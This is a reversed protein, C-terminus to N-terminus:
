AAATLAEVLMADSLKVPNAKMSSSVQAEAAVTSFDSAKLGMQVLGPLSHDRAWAALDDTGLAATIWRVVEAIRAAIPGDRNLAVSNLNLVHPLLAGCVAGHPAKPAHGGIVGALGHVAGLGANSLALGGFLSCLALDDRATAEETTMLLALAQLGRPIADRCLADTVPNARSSIYPEIVQTIADLGSALTTEPPTNDTLAPDVLAIDAIMRPDRLSVKRNHSPVGIVANKTVEAGTGATTPIAMFPAPSAALPQGKGVVELHDLPDNSSALLGAVAKGLDMAAGGGIAIVCDAKTARASALASMLLDLDPEKPCAFSQVPMDLAAIFPEAHRPTAGHVVFVRTGLKMALSPAKAFEGRGFLIQTPATIGFPAM